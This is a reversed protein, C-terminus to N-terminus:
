IIKIKVYFGLATRLTNNQLQNVCFFAHNVDFNNNRETKEWVIFVYLVSNAVIVTQLLSLPPSGWASYKNEKSSCILSM